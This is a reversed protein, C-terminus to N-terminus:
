LEAPHCCRDSPCAIASDRFWIYYVPRATLKTLIYKTRQHGPPMYRRKGYSQLFHKIEREIFNAKDRRLLRLKKEVINPDILEKSEIGVLSLAEILEVCRAPM